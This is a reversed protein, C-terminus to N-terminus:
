IRDNKAMEWPWALPQKIRLFACHKRCIELRGYLSASFIVSEISAVGLDVSLDGRDLASEGGENM